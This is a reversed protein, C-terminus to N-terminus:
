ILAFILAVGLCVTPVHVWSNCCSSCVKVYAIIPLDIAFLVIGLGTSLVWALQIYRFFYDHERGIMEVRHGPGTSNRHGHKGSRLAVHASGDTCDAKLDNHLAIEQERRSEDYLYELESDSSEVFPLICTAIM